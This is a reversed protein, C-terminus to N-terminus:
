TITIVACSQSYVTVVSNDMKLSHSPLYPFKIETFLMKKFLLLFYFPLFFSLIAHTCSDAASTVKPKFFSDNSEPGLGLLSVEGPM